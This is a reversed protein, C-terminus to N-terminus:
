AMERKPDTRGPPAIVSLKQNSQQRVAQLLDITNQDPKWEPFEERMLREYLAYGDDAAQTDMLWCCVRLYGRLARESGRMNKKPNVIFRRHRPAYLAYAKYLTAAKKACRYREQDSLPM